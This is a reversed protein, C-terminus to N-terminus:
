KGKDSLHSRSALWAMVDAPKIRRHTGRYEVPIEGKDTLQRMYTHSIGALKAAESTNLFEENTSVTISDGRSLRRLVDQIAVVAETPLKVATGDVFVTVDDSDTLAKALRDAAAANLPAFTTPQNAHSKESM